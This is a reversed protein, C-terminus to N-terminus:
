QILGWVRCYNRLAKYAKIAKDYDNLEILIDGETKLLCYFILKNDFLPNKDNTYVQVFNEFLQQLCEHMKELILEKVGQLKQHVYNINAMAGGEQTDSKEDSAEDLM